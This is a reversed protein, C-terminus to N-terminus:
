RKSSPNDKKRAIVNHAALGAASLAAAALVAVVVNVASGVLLPVILAVFMGTGGIPIMVAAGVFGNILIAIIAAVWVNIKRVMMGFLWVFVAMEVAILLHVPLGLPFGTTLASLLHGLAGVISGEIPSFVAGSLYGPAADLAVTGTPSPIKIFAGVASLAVLIAVRAVRRPSFFGSEGSTRVTVSDGDFSHEGPQTTNSEM